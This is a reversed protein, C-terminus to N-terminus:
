RVQVGFSETDLRPSEAKGVMSSRQDPKCNSRSGITVLTSLPM